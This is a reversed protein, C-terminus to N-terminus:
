WILTVSDLLTVGEPLEDTFEIIDGIWAGPEDYLRGYGLFHPLPDFITSEEGDAFQISTTEFSYALAKTKNVTFRFEAGDRQFMGKFPDRIDIGYENIVENEEGKTLYAIDILIKERARKEAAKFLCSVNKYTECVTENMGGRGYGLEDIHRKMVSFFDSEIPDPLLGEDGMWFVRCGKWEKTMLDRLANMVDCKWYTSNHWQPGFGFDTPRIFEKRDINVWKYYEGM